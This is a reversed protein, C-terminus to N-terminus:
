LFNAKICLKDMKRALGSDAPLRGASVDVPCVREVVNSNDSYAAAQTRLGKVGVTAIHTCSILCGTDSRTLDDNTIKSM